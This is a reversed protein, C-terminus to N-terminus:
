NLTSEQELTYWDEYKWYSSVARNPDVVFLLLKVFTSEIKLECMGPTGDEHLEIAQWSGVPMIYPHRSPDEPVIVLDILGDIRAALSVNYGELQESTIAAYHLFQKLGNPFTGTVLSSHFSLTSM